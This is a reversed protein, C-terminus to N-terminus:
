TGIKVYEVINKITAVASLIALYSTKPNNPSPLNDAETVIKGFDGEIEVKHINNKFAPSTIIKVITKEAGLGALSLTAAVNINQPFGNIADSASGEFIVTEIKIKDLDIGSKEIFRAGELSRPPKCTTLTVKKIKGMSAAALGDLGCIAGSPIYIRRKKRNATTLIDERDLLGGVSMILVDKEALISELAIDAAVDASAAEIILDSETILENKSLFQPKRKLEGILELASEIVKDYVGVIRINNPFREEIQKALARGITGCGFIGVRLM